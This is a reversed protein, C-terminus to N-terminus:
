LDKDKKIQGEIMIYISIMVGASNYFPFLKWYGYVEISIVKPMLFLSVASILVIFINSSLTYSFKEILEQLKGNM